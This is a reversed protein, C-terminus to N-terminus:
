GCVHTIVEQAEKNKKRASAKSKRYQAKRKEHQKEQEVRSLMEDYSLRENTPPLIFVWRDPSLIDLDPLTNSFVVVKPPDRFTYKYEYRDDYSFGNKATEIASFLARFPSGKLGRPIDVFYIPSDVSYIMRMFDQYGKMIPVLAGRHRCAFWHSLYSKGTNGVTDYVMVVKRPDNVETLVMNQWTRWHPLPDAYQTPISEELCTYNGGKKVYNAVVELRTPDVIDYHWTDLENIDLYVAEPMILLIHTHYRNTLPTKELGDVWNIAARKYKEIIERQKTPCEHLPQGPPSTLLWYNGKQYNARTQPATWTERDM